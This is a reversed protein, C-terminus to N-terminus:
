EMRNKFLMQAILVITSENVITGKEDYPDGWMEKAIAEADRIAKKAADIDNIEISGSITVQAKAPDAPAELKEQDSELTEIKTVNWYGKRYTETLEVTDGTVSKGLIELLTDRQFGTINHWVDDDEEELKLGISLLKGAPGITRMDGVHKLKGKFKREDGETPM